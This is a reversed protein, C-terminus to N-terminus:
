SLILCSVGNSWDLPKPTTRIIKMFREEDSATFKKRTPPNDEEEEEESYAREPESTADSPTKSEDSMEDSMEDSYEDSHTRRKADFDDSYDDLDTTGISPAAFSVLIATILLAKRTRM